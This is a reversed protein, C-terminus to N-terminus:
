SSNESFKSGSSVCQQLYAKGLTRFFLVRSFFIPLLLFRHFTARSFFEMCRFKSSSFTWHFTIKIINKEEDGFLCKSNEIHLFHTYEITKVDFWLDCKIRNLM